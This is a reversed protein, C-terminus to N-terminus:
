QSSVANLRIFQQPTAIPVQMQMIPDGTAADTGVKTPGANTVGIWTILDTSDQLTVTVGTLNAYQRYTLTLNKGDATKGLTPMAARDAATMPRSPDIDSLYKLLNAVGDGQPTAAPGSVTPDGLQTSNFYRSEWTNFSTTAANVTLMLTATGTGAANTAGLMVTSMGIATPTGSILGTSTNIGLGAPLGTANYGTPTNSATITYNFATGVTGTATTAGSIVPAPPSITLMLNQTATGAGNTVSLTVNTQGATTPKGSIVGTTKNVSLGAPLGTAGFSTPSNKGLITYSFATGVVGTAATPSSVTPYNSTATVTLRLNATCTGASTTASLGINFSGGNAPPTGSIVGTTTNVSLGGPLNTANFSTPSDTATITYTLAAGSAVTAQPLSTIAPPGILITSILPNSSFTNVTTWKSWDTSITSSSDTAINPVTTWKGNPDYLGWSDTGTGHTAKYSWSSWSMGDGNFVGVSHAWADGYNFDNFEGIYCPVGYSSKHNDFDSVQNDAGKQVNADTTNYQYEHMEYVVNTWGVSSPSPLMDWNWNGWTGEMFIMHDPDAARVATYLSKLATLVAANSPTGTPENLLDYGAVWANGRYHAAIASWMAQTNAQDTTSTWYQNQNAQGTDDSTSQGGFVGHMDIITYIGRESATQVLTDLLAFADSRMAPAAGPSVSGTVTLAFNTSSSGTANKATLTIEYVGPVSPNLSGSILGTTSNLSLGGPLTSTAFSTPTNTATITYSVVPSTSSVSLNSASTVVPVGSAPTAVVISLTQTGTGGAGTAQLAVSTTGATTPTGSLVGTTANFSLGAPLPAAALSTPSNTATVVYSFPAGVSTPATTPSTIAVTKTDLASLPYFDGWWVPVRVVNMGQAKINDLDQTANWSQRYTKILSQETSVGFRTDLKQLISYEDPLGSADAPTMWPEMLMWGGLNVGKLQLPQGDGGLINTGSTQLIAPRFADLVSTPEHNTFASYLYNRWDPDAEPEWYLAGVGKGNPVARMVTLMNTVFDFNPNPNFLNNNSGYENPPDIEMMLVGDGGAGPQNFSAALDNVTTQIDVPDNDSTDTASVDWHGGNNKLTTFFGKDLSDIHARDIHIVVKINPDIAKVANYGANIFKTLNPGPSGYNPSTRTSPTTISNEIHLLMGNTIENGLAIWEPTVGAAKLQSVVDTTHASVENTLTNIADTTSMGAIENAWNVPIRQNGPDALTWSYDLNILLRLGLANAKVAIPVVEQITCHGFLQNDWNPSVIPPVLVRLRITDIGRAKLIKLCNTVPDPDLTQGTTDYFQFSGSGQSPDAMQQLWSVDAGKAIDGARSASSWAM